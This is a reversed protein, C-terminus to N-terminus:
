MVKALRRHVRTENRGIMHLKKWSRFNNQRLRKPLSASYGFVRAWYRHTEPQMCIFRSAVAIGHKKIPIFDEIVQTSGVLEGADGAAFFEGHEDLVM